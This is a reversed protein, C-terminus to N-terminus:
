TTTCSATPATNATSSSGIFGFTTSGGPALGGNYNMNRATVAPGTSTVTANWANTVTQGDAFTWTVTWDKIAATGATVRVEGQFGGQWRCAITYTATCSKGGGPPPTTTTTVPPTSGFITAEKATAKIGNPGNVIRQGSPPLEVVPPRPATPRRGTWPERCM